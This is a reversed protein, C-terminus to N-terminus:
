TQKLQVQLPRLIEASVPLSLIDYSVGCGCFVIFVSHFSTIAISDTLFHARIIRISRQM